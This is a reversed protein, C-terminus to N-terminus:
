ARIKTQAKAIGLGEKYKMDRKQAFQAAKFGSRIAGEITAPLGTNTWDGALFFNNYDSQTDPRYAELDPTQALTARKEKIIRDPLMAPQATFLVSIDEWVIRALEKSPIDLLANGASITVSALNDRVFVWQATGGILGILPAPWDINVPSDFKYHLNVIASYTLPLTLGDLIQTAPAPPLAAIVCDTGSLSVRDQTFILANVAKGDKGLSKLRQGMHIHVGHSKLFALAPDIFTKALSHKAILPRCAKGGKLASERLVNAMLTASATEPTMNIVAVSLPDILRSYLPNDQAIYKDLTDSPKARMLKLLSLHARFDADPVRANKNFIWFPLPSPNFEIDWRKTTKLDMFPFVARKPGVLQDKAGVIDLYDQACYNGSLLLHNGNDIECKLATDFYSRCRGGAQPAAEYLHIDSGKIAYSSILRLASALGALGAGIIHFQGM